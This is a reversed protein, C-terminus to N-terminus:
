STSLLKRKDPHDPFLVLSRSHQNYEIEQGLHEGGPNM